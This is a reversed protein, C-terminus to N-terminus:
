VRNFCFSTVSHKRYRGHRRRRASEKEKGEMRLVTALVRRVETNTPRLDLEHRLEAEAEPYKEVCSLVYGLAWPREFPDLQSGKQKRSV